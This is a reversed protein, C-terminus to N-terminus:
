VVLELGEYAMIVKGTQRIGRMEAYKRTRQLIDWLTDDDYTPEHHFLVLTDVGADLALDVGTMSSSHGWDGKELAEMETYQADFVLVDAQSFFDVYRELESPGLSTLDTDTAYVFSKGEKKVRYGFSGGPHNLKVNKIDLPGITVSEEEKLTVFRVDAHMSKLPVPFHSVEQQVSFRREIDPHPSYIMIRNGTVYAPLFFPFGQIHDWHTHSLFLHATGKGRGFKRDMLHQGLVRIGSGADFILTVDDSLLQVCSTNGGYTGRVHRPLGEVYHEMAREDRIDADSVGKLAQLIKEKIQQASPPAPISGRVGWFRVVMVYGRPDETEPTSQMGDDAVEFLWCYRNRDSKEAEILMRNHGGPLYFM